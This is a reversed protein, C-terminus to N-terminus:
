YRPNLYWDLSEVLKRHLPDMAPAVVGPDNYKFTKMEPALLTQVRWRDYDDLHSRGARAAIDRDAPKLADAKWTEFPQLLADEDVEGQADDSDLKLFRAIRGLERGPRASLDELRVYLVRGPQKEEFQRMSAMLGRWEACLAEIPRWAEGWGKGPENLERRSAFALEPNRVMCIFQARSFMRGIRPAYLAHLPTKELWRGRLAQTRSGLQEAVLRLFLDRIRVPDMALLDRYNALDIPLLEALERLLGRANTPSIFRDRPHYKDLREFFHTEPLTPLGLHESVLRQCLTTGSRAFGVIFVPM